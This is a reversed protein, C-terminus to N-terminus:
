AEKIQEIGYEKEGESQTVSRLKECSGDLQHKGDKVLV